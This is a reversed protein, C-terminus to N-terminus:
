ASIAPLPYSHRVMVANLRHYDVCLRATGDKKPALVVPFAWPSDSPRVAGIDIMEDLAKDLVARKHQSLPRLNCRWPRADDTNIRHVLVDTKGPHETFMGSFPTLVAELQKRQHNTGTFDSLSQMVASSLTTHMAAVGEAHGPVPVFDIKEAFPAAESQRHLRYGKTPFDLTFGEYSFPPWSSPSSLRHDPCDPDQGLGTSRPPGGSHWGRRAATKMVRDDLQGATRSLDATVGGDTFSGPSAAGQRARSRCVPLEENSINGQTTPPKQLRSVRRRENDAILRRVLEEKGGTDPIRGLKLESALETKKAAILVRIDVSLFLEETTTTSYAQAFNQTAKAM